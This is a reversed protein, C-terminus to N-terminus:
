ATSRLRTVHTFYRITTPRSYTLDREDPGAAVSRRQGCRRSLEGRASGPGVQSDRTRSVTEIRRRRTSRGRGTRSSSARCRATRSCPTWQLRGAIMLHMVLWKGGDFGLAIRKGLRRVATVRRGALADLPPAFTRLVFMDALRVQELIQGGVRAELAEVYVAIDPLEPMGGM